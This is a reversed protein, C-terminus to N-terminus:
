ATKALGAAAVLAEVDVIEIIRGGVVVCAAVGSRSLPQEPAPPEAMVDEIHDVVMAVPGASSTCVVAELLESADTTRGEGPRVESLRLLPLITNGYQIVETLGTREVGDARLQELRSVNSLRFALGSGGAGTAILLGSSTLLGEGAGVDGGDADAQAEVPAGNALGAVDLILSPHGDALITAGAFVPVSRVARTLPKVVAEITDGVGDVVVGFRHDGNRVVVIDLLGGRRAPTVRLHRSLDVLPLLRGRLRHLRVGALNDVTRQEAEDDLQVIEQVDVQPIAYRDGGCWVVLAPMIALTLPVNIRFVTGRGPQSSVEVSGGVQELNARVVDMGVGRGSVSTVEDKTSLGARFMLELRESGDLAEAQEATIEGVTVAREVLRDGDVGRGDDSLEVHVRGGDHSARIRLLGEAPKGAALRENTSELGHDIANRVLHLLPDRLAENVAKDVGIDEGELELHVKKGLATALDRAIRHFKGTVTGIPQLRACMVGDQLERTVLRLQRYPLALAGDEDELAIDGILSRTLVLEGVLDLLKDLVAVDVRVSTEVGSGPVQPDSKVVIDRRAPEPPPTPDPRRDDVLHRALDSIILAHDDEGESGTAQVQRLVARVADALALLSTTVEPDFSLDGARLAGLLNEGAHTLAELRSYGLFGCTGKITHITRFVQALLAPDSPRTELEVLNHDLQDLNERSEDLFAQVIEDDESV